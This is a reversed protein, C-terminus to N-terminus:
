LLGAARNLWECSAADPARGVLAPHEPGYRYARFARNARGPSPGPTNFFFPNHYEWVVEGSATVEFIRGCDGECVLTNGNPLRQAGSINRSYFSSEPEATYQWVIREARPDVEVVRSRDGGLRRHNGNDFLLINGNPLETPDHQHAIEGRGWKWRFRGSGRDLIGITDLQRYSVALAGDSLEEVANQHGWEHRPELPCIADDTPDFVEFSRWDWVAEGSPSVEVLEDGYMVDGAHETGPVGGAVLHHLEAPIPVWRLVMTNGNRLRCVDHHMAVDEYQWLVRGDWDLEAVGGHAGGFRTLPQAVRLTVLLHGNDLLEGCYPPLLPRWTHVVRGAMDVLYVTDGGLSNFLTFGNYARNPVHHTVGLPRFSSYGM